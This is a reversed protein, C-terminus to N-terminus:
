RSLRKKKTYKNKKRRIWRFSLVVATYSLFLGGTSALIILLKRLWEIDNLIGFGFTHLAGYLWRRVRSTRDVRMVKEATKPSIYLCSKADDNFDLRYVPLPCHYMKYFRYYNDYENQVFLKVPKKAFRKESEAAIQEFTFGEHLVITDKLQQYVKPNKFDDYYVFYYPQDFISKWEIKRIGKKPSISKYLRQPNCSEHQTINLTQEWSIKERQKVFLLWDPIDTMSLLGSLLFTFTFVGFIYGTIHHWRYWKKKYPTLWRKKVMMIFGLILGSLSVFLGVISLYILVNEWAGQHQRLNSFYLWHPIAGLRAFWRSKRNTEQLISGTKQSIYLVTHKDDDLYCKYFPLLVKYSSWPIWQDLDNMVLLEKVKAQRFSYCLERAYDESFFAIEELNKANYVKQKKRSEYVRYVPVTDCLELNVAGKFAESPPLIGKFTDESFTSLNLFRDKRSAHPFGQFLLVIGSLFWVFFMLSMIVGLTRHIEFLIKKYRKM